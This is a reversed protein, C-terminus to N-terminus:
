DEHREVMGIRFFGSYEEYAMRKFMTEGADRYDQPAQVLGVKANAFHATAVTLWNPEVQYDSDIVAVIEARPDTVTLAINLAGAKYGKVGEFHFFRFRAGLKRCHAEVPQWVEPDCTNNDLVVVEFEPYDLR